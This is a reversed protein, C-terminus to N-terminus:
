LLKVDEDRADIIHQLTVIGRELQQIIAMNESCHAAVLRSNLTILQEQLQQTQMSTWLDANVSDILEHTIPTENGNVPFSGELDKINIKKAM